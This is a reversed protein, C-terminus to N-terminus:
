ELLKIYRNNISLTNDLWIFRLIKSTIDIIFFNLRCANPNLWSSFIPRNTNYFENVILELASRHKIRSYDILEKWDIGYNEKLRDLIHIKIRLFDFYFNNGIWAEGFDILFVKEKNDILINRGHIDAHVIMNEHLKMTSIFIDTIIKKLREKGPKNNKVYDTFEVGDIKEMVIHKQIDKFNPIFDLDEKEALTKCIEVERARRIEDTFYKLIYHQGDIESEYIMASGTTTILHQKYEKYEDIGTSIATMLFTALILIPNINM